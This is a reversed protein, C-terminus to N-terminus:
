MASDWAKRSPLLRVATAAAHKNKFSLPTLTGLSSPECARPPWLATRKRGKGDIVPGLEFREGIAAAHRPSLNGFELEQRHQGEVRMMVGPLRAGRAEFVHM